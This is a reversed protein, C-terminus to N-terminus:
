RSAPSPTSATARVAPAARWWRGVRSASIRASPAAPRAQSEPCPMASRSRPACRASPTTATRWRRASCRWSATV